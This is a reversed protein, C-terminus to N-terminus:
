KEEDPPTAEQQVPKAPIEILGAQMRLSNELSRQNHVTLWDEGSLSATEMEITSFGAAVRKSAADTEKTEDIAGRAPGRWDAMAYARRMDPNGYGPCDVRGRAVAEDLWIEYIPQCFQQGLKQRMQIYMKWAQLMAARAASYSSRYDLLLEDVPMGLRAGIQRFIAMTFPDYNPNPRGPNATEISEGPALDIISGSGLSTEGAQAIDAPGGVGSPLQMAGETKIFVTFMSAVVTADLEAKTYRDLKKLPELIPAILPAGRVQGPRERTIIHMIRRRGTNAGFVAHREWHLPDSNIYDGPHRTQIWCAVPAGYSDLEIGGYNNDYELANNRNSVRDAEILQIKLGYPSGPREIFPTAAFCDGSVFASMQALGQLAYFNSNREADCEPSDAYARFECEIGAAIEEAREKTIGLMKHDLRCQLRLGTGVINSCARTVAAGAIPQNRFADRSRATLTKREEVNLDTKASGLGPIWSRLHRSFRSAGDNSPKGLGGNDNLSAVVNLVARSKARNLAKEPDWISVARDFLNILRSM